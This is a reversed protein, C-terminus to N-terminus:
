GKDNYKKNRLKMTSISNDVMICKDARNKQAKEIAQEIRNCISAYQEFVVYEKNQALRTPFTNLDINNKNDSRTELLVAIVGKREGVEGSFAEKLENDVYPREYTNKGVICLLVDCEKIIKRIHQNITENKWGDFMAGDSVVSCTFGKSQLLTQIIDKYKNDARHFSIFVRINM